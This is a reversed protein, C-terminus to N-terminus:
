QETCGISYTEYLVMIMSRDRLMMLQDDKNAKHRVLNGSQLAAFIFIDSRAEPLFGCPSLRHGRRLGVDGDAVLSSMRPEDAVSSVVIVSTIEKRGFAAVSLLDM